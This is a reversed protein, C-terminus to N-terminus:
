RLDTHDLLRWAAALLSWSTSCAAVILLGLLVIAPASLRPDPVWPPRGPPIEAHRTAPGRRRSSRQGHGPGGTLWWM